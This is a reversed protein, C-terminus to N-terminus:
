GGIAPYSLKTMLYNVRDLLPPPIQEAPLKAGCGPASPGATAKDAQAWIPVGPPHEAALFALLSAFELPDAVLDEYRIRRCAAPHDEEFAILQETHAAWYSALAAVSSAPYAATFPAFAAGALGWGTTHLAAYIVDPCARHLCLVQTGPFLQVFARASAPPALAVECWRRKGARALIATIVSGVMARISAVALPSLVDGVPTEVRRWTAAAQDCLPIVGTGTTCELNPVASLFSRLWEADSRVATMVIVPTNSATPRDGPATAASDAPVLGSASLPRAAASPFATM